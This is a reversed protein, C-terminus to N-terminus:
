VSRVGDIALEVAIVILLAGSLRGLLTLGARHVLRELLPGALLISASAALVVASAVTATDEGFRGAYAIAAAIAAPGALLPMAIPVLWFRSGSDERASLPSMSDGNGLLRLAPPAMIAAAAFQFSEASVDLLGLFPGSLLSAIVLVIFAGASGFLATRSVPPALNSRNVTALFPSIAGFPAIAAFMGLLSEALGSM